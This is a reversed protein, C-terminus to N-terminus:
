LMSLAYREAIIDKIDRPFAAPIVSMLESAYRKHKNIIKTIRNVMHRKVPFGRSILFHVCDMRCHDESTGRAAIAVVSNKDAPFDNDVLWVLTDILGYDAALFMVGNSKPFDNDLLWQLCKVSNVVYDYIDASKPYGISLLLQASHLNKYRMAHKIGDLRIKGKAAAYYGVFGGENILFEITSTHNGAAANELSGMSKEFGNDILLRIIDNCGKVAAAPIERGCRPFNEAILWKVCDLHGSRAAYMITCPNKELGTSMLRKICEIHNNIAARLFNDSFTGDCPQYGCYPRTGECKTCITTEMILYHMITHTTKM